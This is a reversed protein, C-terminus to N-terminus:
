RLIALAQVLAQVDAKSKKSRAVMGQMREDLQKLDLHEDYMKSEYAYGAPEFTGAKLRDRLVSNEEELKGAKARTADLELKMAEFAAKLAELETKTLRLEELAVKAKEASNKAGALRTQLSDVERARDKAAQKAIAAAKDAKIAAAFAKGELKVPLTSPRREITKQENYAKRAKRCRYMCQVVVASRYQRDNMAEEAKIRAYLAMYNKRGLQGRYFKQLWLGAFKKATFQKRTLSMRVFKQIRIAARERRYAKLFKRGLFRRASAQAKVIRTKTRLYRARALFRRILAQIGLSAKTLRENRFKELFEFATQRLFM